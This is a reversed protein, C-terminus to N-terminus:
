VEEGSKDELIPQHEIIEKTIDEALEKASEVLQESILILIQQAKEESLILKIDGSQTTIHLTGSLKGKDAGFTSRTLNIGSLQM